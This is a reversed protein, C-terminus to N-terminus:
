RRDTQGLREGDDLRKEAANEEDGQDRPEHREPHTLVLELVCAALAQRDRVARHGLGDGRPNDLSSGAPFVSVWDWTMGPADTWSVEIPEGVYTKKSTM